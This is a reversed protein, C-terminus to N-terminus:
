EKFVRFVYGRDSCYKHLWREVCDRDSETASEKSAQDDSRFWYMRDLELYINYSGHGDFLFPIELKRGDKTFVLAEKNLPAISSGDSFTQGGVFRRLKQLIEM